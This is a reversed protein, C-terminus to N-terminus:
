GATAIMVPEVILTRKGVSAHAEATGDVMMELEGKVVVTHTGNGVDLAFWNFGHGAATGAFLAEEDDEHQDLRQMRHARDCFVVKGDPDGAAVPVPAGDIEVWVRVLGLSEAEGTGTVTVDTALTCELTVSLILDTPTSTKITGSLLPVDEGPGFVDVASGAAVVRGAPSHVASAGASTLLLAAALVGALGALLGIPSRLKQAM